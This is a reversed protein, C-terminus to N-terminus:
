YIESMWVKLKCDTDTASAAGTGAFVSVYHGVPIITGSEVRTQTDSSVIANDHLTRYLSGSGYPSAQRNLVIDYGQSPSTRCELTAKDLLAGSSFTSPVGVEAFLAYTGSQSVRAEDYTFVSGTGYNISPPTSSTEDFYLSGGLVLSGGAIATLLGRTFDNGLIVSGFRTSKAM